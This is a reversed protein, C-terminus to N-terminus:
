IKGLRWSYRQVKSHSNRMIKNCMYKCIIKYLVVTVQMEM